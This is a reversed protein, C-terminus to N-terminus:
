QDSGATPPCKADRSYGSRNTSSTRANKQDASGWSLRWVRWCEVDACSHPLAESVAQSSRARRRKPRAPPQTWRGARDRGVGRPGGGRGRRAPRAGRPTATRAAPAPAGSLAPSCSAGRPGATNRLLLALDEAATVADRLHFRVTRGVEVVDGVVLAGTAEDADLIGRVPLRRPPARRRVRRRRCGAAARPRSARRRAIPHANVVEALRTLAPAGALEYLVNREARQPRDDAARDACPGPERGHRRGRDGGVLLGVAGHAFM